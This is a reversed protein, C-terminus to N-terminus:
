SAAQEQKEKRHVNNVHQKMNHRFNFGRGCVECQFLKTDSHIAMHRKIDGKTKFTKHCTPCEHSRVAKHVLRVHASLTMKSAFSKFCVQCYFNGDQEEKVVDPKIYPGEPTMFGREFSSNGYFPFRQYMYMSQWPIHPLGGEGVGPMSQSQGGPPGGGVGGSPLKVDEVIQPKHDTEGTDIHLEKTKDDDTQSEDSQSTTTTQDTTVGDNNEAVDHVANDLISELQDSLSLVKKGSAGDVSNPNENLPEGKPNQSENPHEKQMHQNFVYRYNFGKQCHSCQFLKSDSHILKHRKVDGKTKFMKHCIDCENEYGPTAPTLHLQSATPTRLSNLPPNKLVHPSNSVPTNEQISHSTSTSPTDSDSNTKPSSQKLKAELLKRYIDLYHQRQAKLDKVEPTTREEKSGGESTSEYAMREEKSGGEAYTERLTRHSDDKDEARNFGGDNSEVDPDDPTTDVTEPADGECDSIISGASEYKVETCIIEPFLDPTLRSRDQTLPSYRADDRSENFQLSSTMQDLNTQNSLPHGVPNPQGGAAQVIETLSKEHLRPNSYLATVPVGHEHSFDDSKHEIEAVSQLDDINVGPHTVEMHKRLTYRYNFGQNCISCSFMKKEDHIRSHRTLEGKTKFSKFCVQCQNATYKTHVTKMHEIMDERSNFLKFCFDCQSYKAETAAVKPLQEMPDPQSYGGVGQDKEQSYMSGPDKEQHSYLVGPDKDQNYVGVVAVDKDHQNYIASSDSDQSSLGGTEKEQFYKGLYPNERSIAHRPSYPNVQTYQNLIPPTNPKNSILPPSNPKAQTVYVSVAPPTNAKSQANPPIYPSMMPPTNENPKNQTSINYPPPSKTKIPSLLPPTNTDAKPRNRNEGSSIEAEPHNADMPAEDFGESKVECNAESLAYVPNKSSSIDRDIQEESNDANGYHTTLHQRYVYRYNFGKNCHPCNYLKQESHILIHRKLDGNTKFLKMCVPCRFKRSTQHVLKLHSTYTLNNAFTKNCPACFPADPDRPPEVPPKPGQLLDTNVHPPEHNTTNDGKRKRPKHEHKFMVHTKLNHKYNFGKNCHPCKYLKHNLHSQMHRWLHSNSQFGKSCKTCNFQKSPQHSLQIHNDVADQSPFTNSCVGCTYVPTPDTANNTSSPTPGPGKPLHKFNLPTLMPANHPSNLLPWQFNAPYMNNYIYPNIPNVGGQPSLQPQMGPPIIPQPFPGFAMSIPPLTTGSGYAMGPPGHVMQLHKMLGGETDSEVGCVPCKLGTISPSHQVTNHNDLESRSPFEANCLSCKFMGPSTPDHTRAVHENLAPESVFEKDCVSCSYLTRREPSLLPSVNTRAVCHRKKHPYIPPSMLSPNVSGGHSNAGTNSNSGGHSHSGASHPRSVHSCSDILRKVLPKRIVGSIDHNSCNDPENRQHSISTSNPSKDHESETAYGKDTSDREFKIRDPLGSKEMSDQELHRDPIKTKNSNADLISRTYDFVQNQYVSNNAEDTVDKHHTHDDNNKHNEHKVNLNEDIHSKLNDCKPQKEASHQVNHVICHLQDRVQICPTGCLILSVSDNGQRVIKVNTDSHEGKFNLTQTSNRFVETCGEVVNRPLVIELLNINSPQVPDPDLRSKAVIDM